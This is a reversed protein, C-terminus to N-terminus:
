NVIGCEKHVAAEGYNNNITVYDRLAIQKLNLLLNVRIPNPIYLSFSLVFHELLSVLLYQTGHTHQQIIHGIYHERRSVRVTCVSTYDSM